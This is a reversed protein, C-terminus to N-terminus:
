REPTMPEAGHQVGGGSPESGLEIEEADAAVPVASGTVTPARYDVVAARIRRFLGMVGGPMLFMVVILAVGYLVGPAAQNLDAAYVPMFQTFLAGFIPGFITALGGVVAATLFEISRLLTFSEPSLFGVVFSFLGGAVGAFAASYAFILTKFIALNVGMTEAAIHNDRIAKVGRGVRGHLLNRALLFLVVAVGLCLFYQWQDNALGTWGPAEPRPVSMGQSGGTIDGFRRILPPAMVALALTVLALYLGELRLAPIGFLFGLVFTVAFAPLLAPLYAWGHDAILVGSTYAGVAFFFGHGLSIQGNYGTLMNLGLTAIAIVIVLTIQGVRYPTATFPLAVVVLAFLAMAGWRIIRDNRSGRIITPKNM